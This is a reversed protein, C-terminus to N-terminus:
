GHSTAWPSRCPRTAPCSTPPPLIRPYGIILVTAAPAKKQAATLAAVLKPYTQNIIENVFTSGYEQQCPNGLIDTASIAACGFFSDVFVNEDNGGITM